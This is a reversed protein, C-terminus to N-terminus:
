LAIDPTEKASDFVMCTLTREIGRITRLKDVVFRGIANVDREKVKILIDWDGTIIHVEQVEPFKAVERAIDRQSLTKEIGPMRYRFSALIFATTGRGLKEADLIAKYAKIVGQEELRKIRAYVTTIPSGIRRSIERVPRKCDEQLLRLIQIDKEDLNMANM